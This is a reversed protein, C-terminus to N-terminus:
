KKIGKFEKMLRALTRIFEKDTPNLVGVVEMIRNKLEIEKKNLISLKSKSCFGKEKEM